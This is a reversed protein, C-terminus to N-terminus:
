GGAHPRSHFRRQRFNQMGYVSNRHNLLDDAEAALGPAAIHRGNGPKLPRKDPFRDPIPNGVDFLFFLEARAMSDHLSRIIQFLMGAVDKDNAAVRRKKARFRNAAQNIFAALCFGSGGNERGDHVIGEAVPAHKAVVGTVHRANDLLFVACRVLEGDAFDIGAGVAKFNGREKGRQRLEVTLIRM